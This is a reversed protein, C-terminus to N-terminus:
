GVLLARRFALDLRTVYRQLAYPNQGRSRAVPDGRRYPDPYCLEDVISSIPDAVDRHLAERLKTIVRGHADILGPLVEDFTGDWTRWRQSPDLSLYFLGNYTVGGTLLFYLSNGFMFADSAQRWRDESLRKKCEYLQEPSAYSPDGAIIQDDHPAPRGVVHASGLDGLKGSPGASSQWCLINSPKIDQHHANISHLQGLGVAVQHGLQIIPAPDGPDATGVFTRADRGDARELILYNVPFPFGDVQVSGAGLGKVIRDFHRSGCKDLLTREANYTATLRELEMSPDAARFAAAYDLAKLFGEKGSKHRVHYGVSFAGGTHGDPLEVREEVHWGGDLDLGELHHAATDDSM